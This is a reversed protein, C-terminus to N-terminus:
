TAIVGATRLSALLENIKAVLEPTGAGPDEDAVAPGPTIAPGAPGTPGAPGAPGQAGTAGTAGAPGTPGQPGAPGAPGQAGTAGAAGTAGTAGAPGTPGTPGAPGQMPSATLAGQMKAKLFLQNQVATELLGRVSENAALVESVTAPPGSLGPITGLIYQLKEGEANLIHSLGLEEMAISSLIQNVADERQIPPDVNPFSPMSM